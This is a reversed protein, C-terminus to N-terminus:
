AFDRWEGNIRARSIGNGSTFELVGDPIPTDIEPTRGDALKWDTRAMPDMRCIDRQATAYTEGDPTTLREGTRILIESM